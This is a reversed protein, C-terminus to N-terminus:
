FSWVFDFHLDNQVGSHGGFAAQFLAESEENKETKVRTVFNVADYVVFKAGDGLQFTGSPKVKFQFQKSGHRNIYADLELGATFSENIAFSVEPRITVPFSLGMGRKTPDTENPNAGWYKSALMMDDITLTIGLKESAKYGVSLRPFVFIYPNFKGEEYQVESNLLADGGSAVATAYSAPTGGKAIWTAETYKKAYRDAYTQNAVKTSGLNKVGVFLDVTVPIDESDMIFNLFLDATGDNGASTFSSYENLQLLRNGDWINKANAQLFDGKHGGSTYFSYRGSVLVKFLDEKEYSAGFILADLVSSIDQSGTEKAVANKIFNKSGLGLGLNLGEVPALVVTVGDTEDFNTWTDPTLIPILGDFGGLANGYMMWSSTFTPDVNRGVSVKLKDDFAKGYIFAKNFFTSAFGASSFPNAQGVDYRLRYKAGITGFELEREFGIKLDSRFGTGNDIADSYLSLVPKQVYRADEKVSDKDKKVSTVAGNLNLGTKIEGNITLGEIQMAEPLDLAFVAGAAALSLVAALTIVKKM